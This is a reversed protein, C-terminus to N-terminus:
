DVPFSASKLSVMMTAMMEVSLMGSASLPVSSPRRPRNLLHSAFAIIWVPRPRLASVLAVAGSLLDCCAPVTTRTDLGTRRDGAQM